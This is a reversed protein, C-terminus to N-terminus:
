ARAARYSFQVVGIFNVAPRFIISKRDPSIAVSGKSAAPQTVSAVILNSNNGTLNDIDNALVRITLATNAPTSATDARETIGPRKLTPPRDFRRRDAVTVLAM